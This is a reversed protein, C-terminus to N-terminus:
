ASKQRTFMWNEGELMVFILYHHDELFYIHFSKSLSTKWNIKCQVKRRSISLLVKLILHMKFTEGKIEAATANSSYERENYSVTSKIIIQYNIDTELQNEVLFVHWYETHTYQQLTMPCTGPIDASLQTSPTCVRWLLTVRDVNAPILSPPPQQWKMEGSYLYIHFQSAQGCLYYPIPPIILM